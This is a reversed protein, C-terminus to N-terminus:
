GAEQCVRLLMRRGDDTLREPDLGLAGAIEGPALQPVLREGAAVRRIAAALAGPDADAAVVGDAGALLAPVVAAADTTATVAVVSPAPEARKARRCFVLADRPSRECGVLVVDPRTRELLPWLMTSAAAAGVPEIGDLEGLVEVLEARALPLDDIVLVRVSM